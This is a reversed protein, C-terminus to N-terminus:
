SVYSINQLHEYADYIKEGYSKVHPNKHMKTDISKLQHLMQADVNEDIM